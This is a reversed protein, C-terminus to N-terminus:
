VWFKEFLLKEVRYDRPKGYGSCNGTGIPIFKIQQRYQSHSFSQSIPWLTTGYNFDHVWWQRYRLM